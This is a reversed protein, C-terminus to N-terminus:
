HTKIGAAEIEERTIVSLKGVTFDYDALYLTVDGREWAEVESRSPENGDGNEERCFGIRLLGDEDEGDDDYVCVDDITLGYRDGVAELLAAISDAHVGVSESMIGRTTSPDCGEAYTDLTATKTMYTCTYRM